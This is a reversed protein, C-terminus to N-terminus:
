DCERGDRFGRRQGAVKGNYRSHIFNEKFMGAELSEIKEIAARLASTHRRGFGTENTCIRV